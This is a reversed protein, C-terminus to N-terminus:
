GPAAVGGPGPQWAERGLDSRRWAPPLGWAPSAAGGPRGWQAWPWRQQAERDPGSRPSIRTRKEGRRRELSRGTPGCPLLALSAGTHNCFFPLSLILKMYWGRGHLFFSGSSEAHLVHQCAHPPPLLVPGHTWGIKVAGNPTRSAQFWKRFFVVSKV